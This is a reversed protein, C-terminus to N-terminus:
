FLHIYFTKGFVNIRKINAGSEALYRVFPHRGLYCAYLFPTNAVEDLYELGIKSQSLMAVMGGFNKEEIRKFLEIGASKEMMERDTTATVASM